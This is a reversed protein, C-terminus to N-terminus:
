GLEELARRARRDSADLDVARRLYRRASTLRGRQRLFLGYERCAIAGDMEAAIARRFLLDADTARGLQSAM